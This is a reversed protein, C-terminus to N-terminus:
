SPAGDRDSADTAPPECEEAAVPLPIGLRRFREVFRTTGIRRFEGVTRMAADYGAHAFEFVDNFAVRGDGTWYPETIRAVKRQGDAFRYLIVILDLGDVVMRRVSDDALGLKAFLAITVAREILDEASSAHITTMSGDHGCRMAQLVDVMEAGRAEGVIIRDARMRLAERVLQRITIEGRGEINEPRAELRVVHDHALSMDLEALDEITVIRENSPVQSALVNMMTTKGSSGPGGIAVNLRAKVAAALFYAMDPTLSGRLVLDELQVFALGFKRITLIPGDLAVPPLVAHVRSGDELRGDLTPNAFDIRRGMREAIKRIAEVLQETDRFRVSTRELRGAREVLIADPGNVMIEGVTEDDLLPQLPGVGFIQDVLSRAVYDVDGETPRPGVAWGARLQEAVNRAHRELRTRAEPGELSRQTGVIALFRPFAARELQGRTSAQGDPRLPVSREIVRLRREVEALAADVGSSAV